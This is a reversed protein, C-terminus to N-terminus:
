KKVIVCDPEIKSIIKKTQKVISDFKEDEEELTFKQTMFSITAKTVGELKSIEREMKAACNACELEQLKFVKRM